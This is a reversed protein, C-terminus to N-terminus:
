CYNWDRKVGESNVGKLILRVVARYNYYAYTLPLHIGLPIEGGLLFFSLLSGGRAM